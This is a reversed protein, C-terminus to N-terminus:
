VKPQRGTSFGKAQQRVFENRAPETAYYGAGLRDNWAQEILLRDSANVRRPDSGRDRVKKIMSQLEGKTMEFGGPSDIQQAADIHDNILKQTTVRM